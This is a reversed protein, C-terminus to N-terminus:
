QIVHIVYMPLLKHYTAENHEKTDERLCKCADELQWSFSQEEEEEEDEDDEKLATVSM